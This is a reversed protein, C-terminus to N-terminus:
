QYVLIQQLDRDFVYLRGADDIALSAPKRVASPGKAPLQLTTRFNGASDFAHIVGRDGDLVYLNGLVDIALDVPSDLEYRAPQGAPRRPIAGAPKGDRGFISVSRTRGDLVALDDRDNQVMRLAELNSAFVSAHSGAPTFRHIARTRRDAILWEGKWTSVFSLIELRETKGERPVEPVFPAEIGERMILYERALAPVRGPALGVAFAPIERSGAPSSRLQEFKDTSFAFLGERTGLVLQGADYTLGAGDRFKTKGVVTLLQVPQLEGRMHLRHLITNRELAVAAEPRAAALDRFDRRVRQLAEMASAADGQQVHCSAAGILSRAAWITRPYRLTVDRFYRLATEPDRQIRYVEGTRYQAEALADSPPFIDTEREFHDRYFNKVREFHELALQFNRNEWLEILGLLVFGSQAAPASLYEGSTLTNTIKRAEGFQRPWMRLYTHGKQLLAEARINVDPCAEVKQFDLLAAAYSEREMFQVGSQYFACAAQASGQQAAGPLGAAAAMVGTAMAVWVIRM